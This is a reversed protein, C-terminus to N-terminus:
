TLAVWPSVNSLMWEVISSVHISSLCGALQRQLTKNQAVVAIKQAGRQAGIWLVIIRIKILVFNREWVQKWHTCWKPGCSSCRFEIEAM